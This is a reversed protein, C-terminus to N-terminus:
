PPDERRRELLPMSRREGPLGNASSSVPRAASLPSGHVELQGVLLDRHPLEGRLEDIALHRRVRRLPVPDLRDVQADDRLQGLEPEEAHRDGLLVAARATVVQRVAQHHLLQAAAVRRHAADHRHREAQHCLRDEDVAALLL